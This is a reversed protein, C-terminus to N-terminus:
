AFMEVRFGVSIKIRSDPPFRFRTGSLTGDNSEVRLAFQGESWRVQSYLSTAVIVRGM